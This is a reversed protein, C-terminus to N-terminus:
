LCGFLNFAIRLTGVCDSFLNGIISDLIRSIMFIQLLFTKPDFIISIYNIRLLFLFSKFENQSVVAQVGWVLVSGTEGKRDEGYM